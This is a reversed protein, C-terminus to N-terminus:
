DVDCKWTIELKDGSEVNIAAFTQRALLTGTDTANLIGSETVALSGSFTWEHVWQATDNAVDTTVRSTTATAREGGSDTVESELETDTAAPATTGEGIALNDFATSTVGNILGAVEAKGADVVLNKIHRLSILEGEPSFHKVTFEGHLLARDKV